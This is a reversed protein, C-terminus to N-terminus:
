RGANRILLSRLQHAASTSASASESGCCSLFSDMDLHLSSLTHNNQMAQLYIDVTHPSICSTNSSLDLHRLNSSLASTDGDHDDDDNSNELLKAFDAIADDDLRCRSLDLYGLLKKKRLVQLLKGACVRNSGFPNQSLELYTLHVQLQTTILSSFNIILIRIASLYNVSFHCPLWSPARTSYQQQERGGERRM